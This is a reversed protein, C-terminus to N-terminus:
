CCPASVSASNRPCHQQTQREIDQPERLFCRTTTRPQDYQMHQITGAVGDRLLHSVNPSFFIQWWGIDTLKWKRRWHPTWNQRYSVFFSQPPCGRKSEVCQRPQHPMASSQSRVRAKCRGCPVDVKPIACPASSHTEQRTNDDASTSVRTDAPNAIWYEGATVDGMTAFHAVLRGRRGEGGLQKGICGPEPPNQLALTSVQYSEQYGIPLSLPFHGRHAM